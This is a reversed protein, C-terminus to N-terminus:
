AKELEVSTRERDTVEGFYNKVRQRNVLFSEDSNLKKLEIARHATVRVIEFPGSWKNKFKGCFIKPRSNYLLALQGPEFERPQIHKDYIRKTREKYMKANEYGHYCFIDLEHLQLLRKKGVQVLDLNLKKIAWYSRHELEVPLHCAKGFILKYPSIGISTKYATRYAWLADDLKLSWDKM